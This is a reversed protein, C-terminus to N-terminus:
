SYRIRPDFWGYSIDVLFNALTVMLAIIVCGGQVIPYDQSFVAETMMRGMGPINFVTEILVSGGIIYTVQLGILTIVPILGNKLVHRIVITREQLGKAWATRIYDQHIIELMSSRTQRTNSALPVLSLCIVPMILQRTSLWYDQFPSTYGHVPLWRLNLSFLYVMLIGLWFVPISIGLNAISTVLTDLWTGRRLASVLGALIGLVSSLILSLIGLHVTIPLRELIMSEVKTASYFSTGFDGHILKSSWDFYQMILPKDLGFDVRLQQIQAPTLTDLQNKATYLLIPDAPLLRMILFVIISAIIIVLISQILRRIIFTTL